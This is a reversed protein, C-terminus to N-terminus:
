HERQQGRLVRGHTHELVEILLLGLFVLAAPKLGFDKFVYSVVGTQVVKKSWYILRLLTDPHSSTKSTAKTM